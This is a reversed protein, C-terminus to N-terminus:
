PRAKSNQFLVRDLEPLLLKMLAESPDQEMDARDHSVERVLYLKYLVPNRAFALRPFRPVEWGRGANWAWVIKLTSSAEFAEKHVTTVKFHAPAQEAAIPVDLGKDPGAQRYGAGRYCVEPTHVAIYGPKGCVMLVLVSNKTKQNEYRRMMYGDIGGIQLSRADLEVPEGKWDGVSTPAERIKALAKQIETDAVWRGTWLGHVIGSGILLVAAVIASIIRLMDFNRFAAAM